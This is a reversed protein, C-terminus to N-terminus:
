CIFYINSANETIKIWVFEEGDPYFEYQFFFDKTSNEIDKKVLNIFKLDPSWIFLNEKLFEDNTLQCWIGSVLYNNSYDPNELKHEEIKESILGFNNEYVNRFIEIFRKDEWYTDLNYNITYESEKININKFANIRLTPNVNVYGGM